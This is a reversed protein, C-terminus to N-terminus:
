CFFSLCARAFCTSSATLASTTGSFGIGSSDSCAGITPRFFFVLFVRLVASEVGVAVRGFEGSGTMVSSTISSFGSDRGAVGTLVGLSSRLCEVGLGSVVRSASDGAVASTGAGDGLWVVRVVRLAADM